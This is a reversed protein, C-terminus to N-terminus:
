GESGSQVARALALAKEFLTRSIYGEEFRQRLAEKDTIQTRGDPWRVVDIELDVYRVRDPYVEIPTNINWYEGVERGDRRFYSHRLLWEGDRVETLAYDGEEKEIDLGDYVGRGKYRTRKLLLRGEEENAELITGESLYLVTGEIKVHEIMLEVGKQLRSWILGKFAERSAKEKKEPHFSLGLGEILDVYSSDVIKLRHHYRLTPVVKERLLDLVRKSEFPFEFEVLDRAKRRRIVDPLTEHMIVEVRELCEEKGKAAVGMRDHRDFIEVHPEDSDSFREFRFRQRIEQSPQVVTIKKDLFLRTLSTAYIGRIKVKLGQLGGGKHPNGGRYLFM